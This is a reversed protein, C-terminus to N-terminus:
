VEQGFERGDEVKVNIKILVPKFLCIRVLINGLFMYERDLNRRDVGIPKGVGSAIRM